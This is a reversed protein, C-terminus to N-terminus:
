NGGFLPMPKRNWQTTDAFSLGELTGLSCFTAQKPQM